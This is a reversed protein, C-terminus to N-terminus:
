VHDTEIFTSTKRNMTTEITHSVGGLDIRKYGFGNGRDREKETSKMMGRIRDDSLYYHEDVNRELVDILRKKLKIPQPFIYTPTPEDDTHLISVMFLRPRNQPVGLDKSNLLQAFNEYGFGNLREQWKNFGRVFKKSAVAAVNEFLVYKPRKLEIAKTCEWLLSSRTGSGEDGGRQRGASSFDQCPSSMTFLDFDPVASWDIASIDGYNKDAAHPFLANHAQIAFKDIESWGVIEYEFEPHAAKIRELALAQSDYGAFAFFCRLPRDKDYM